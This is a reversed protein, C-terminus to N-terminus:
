RRKRATRRRRKGNTLVVAAAVVAAGGAIWPAMSKWDIQSRVVTEVLPNVKQELVREGVDRSKDYLVAFGVDSPLATTADWAAGAAANSAFPQVRVGAGNRVVSVILHVHPNAEAKAVAMAHYQDWGWEAAGLAASSTCGMEQLYGM